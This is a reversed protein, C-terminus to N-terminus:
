GRFHPFDAEDGVGRGYRYNGGEHVSYHCSQCLIVCNEVNNRGGWKVHIMHHAQAGEGYRHEGRGANGVRTITTGCSACRNQQRALAQSATNSSFEYPRAM